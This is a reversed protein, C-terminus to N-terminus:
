FLIGVHLGFTGTTIKSDVGSDDTVDVFGQKWNLGIIASIDETLSYEVGGMVGYSLNFWSLSKNINQNEENIDQATVEGRGRTTAGITFRPVEFFVRFLGIEDTRLKLAFPVELYQIKSRVDAGPPLNHLSEPDLPSDKWVDGGNEYNLQGGQNGTIGVGTAFAIYPSMYYEAKIYLSRSFNYKDRVITPSNSNMWSFSFPELTLGLRLNEGQGNATGFFVCLFFVYILKKM